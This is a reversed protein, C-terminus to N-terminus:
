AELVRALEWRLGERRALAEASALHAEAAAPDGRRLEIEGLLRDVLADHFQGAFPALRAHCAALRERDDLRLAIQALYALPEAPPQAGQALRGSELLAELEDVCARAERVHGAFARALGLMGLYWVLAGPGIGRFLAIATELRAEA